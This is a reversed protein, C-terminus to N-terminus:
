LNKVIWKKLKPNDRLVTCMGTSLLSVVKEESENGSMNMSYFIAHMIEHMLTDTLAGPKQERCIVITQTCTDCSGHADTATEIAKDVWIIEYDLNFIKVNKPYDAGM